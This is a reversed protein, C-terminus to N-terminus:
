LHLRAFMGPLMDLISKTARLYALRSQIEDLKCLNEDVYSLPPPGIIAPDHIRYFDRCVAMEMLRVEPIGSMSGGSDAVLVWALCLGLPYYYEPIDFSWFRKLRDDPVSITATNTSDTDSLLPTSETVNTAPESAIQPLLSSNM